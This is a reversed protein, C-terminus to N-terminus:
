KPRILLLPLTGAHMVKDTVSGHTFRGFGGSHGSTSMVVLEAGTDKEGQIIEAAAIGAKVL